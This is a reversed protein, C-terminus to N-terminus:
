TSAYSNFVNRQQGGFISSKNINLQSLNGYSQIADEALDDLSSTFRLPHIHSHDSQARIDDNFQHLSDNFSRCAEIVEDRQERSGITMAQNTLNSYREAEKKM